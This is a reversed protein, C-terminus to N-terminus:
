VSSALEQAMIGAQIDTIDNGNKDKLAKKLINSTGSPGKVTLYWVPGEKELQRKNRLISLLTDVNSGVVQVDSQVDGKISFLEDSEAQTLGSTGTEAIVAQTAVPQSYKIQINYSGLTVIFPDDGSSTLLIGNYVKLTHNEESPRIRWGNELFVYASVYIGAAADITDGGVISMAQLYGNGDSQVWNKWRSYLDKVDMGTTGASYTIIKDNGNFTYAM